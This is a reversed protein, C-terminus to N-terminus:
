FLLLEVWREKKSNIAQIGVRFFAIECWIYRKLAVRFASFVIDSRHFNRNNPNGYGCVRGGALMRSDHTRGEVHGFLNVIM